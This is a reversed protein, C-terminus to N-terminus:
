RAHRRLHLAALARCGDMRRIRGPLGTETHGLPMREDKVCDAVRGVALGKKEPLNKFPCHAARLKKLAPFIEDRIRSVFGNKVKAVFILQKNEYVGLLFCNLWRM